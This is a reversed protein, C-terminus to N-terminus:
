KWTPPPSTNQSNQYEQYLQLKQTNPQLKQIKVITNQKNMKIYDHIKHQKYWSFGVCYLNPVMQQINIINPMKTYIYPINKIKAIHKNKTSGYNHQM